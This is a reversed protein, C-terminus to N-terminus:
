VLVAGSREIAFFARPRNVIRLDFALEEIKGFFHRSRAAWVSFCANQSDSCDIAKEELHLAVMAAEIPM